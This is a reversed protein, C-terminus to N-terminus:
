DAFIRELSSMERNKRNMPPKDQSQRIKEKLRKIKHKNYKPKKKSM